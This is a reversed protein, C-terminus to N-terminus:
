GQGLFRRRLQAGIMTIATVLGLLVLILASAERYEFLHFATIIELGIGGAGVLGVTIAARLNHEWRYLIVDAGACQGGETSACIHWNSIKGLARM